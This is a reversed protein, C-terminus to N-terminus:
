KRGTWVLNKGAQKAAILARDAIDILEDAAAHLGLM